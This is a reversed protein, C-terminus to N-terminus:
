LVKNLVRALAGQDSSDRAATRVVRCLERAAGPDASESLTFGSGTLFVIFGAQVFTNATDLRVTCGSEADDTATAGAIVTVTLPAFPGGEPGALTGEVALQGDQEVFRAVTVTGPFPVGAEGPGSSFTGDVAFQVPGSGVPKALANTAAVGSMLAFTMAFFTFFIKRM